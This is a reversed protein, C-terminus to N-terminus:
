TQQEAQLPATLLTTCDVILAFPPPLMRVVKHLDKAPSQGM